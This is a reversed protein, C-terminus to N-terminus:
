VRPIPPIGPVGIPPQATPKPATSDFDPLLEYALGEIQEPPSAILTDIIEQLQDPPLDSYEMKIQEILTNVDAAQAKREFHIQAISKM